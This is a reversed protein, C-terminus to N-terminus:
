VHFRFYPESPTLLATEVEADCYQELMRAVRDRVSIARKESEEGLGDINMVMVQTKETIRTQYGNRWNWRRCMVERTEAVVYIIEGSDPHETKEPDDLPTFNEDGEAFRLELTEGVRLIDDGGVPLAGRISNDNMIAVAKNIFPISAGLKQVRKLLALHAPPYKKPNLGLVRYTEAWASARPDSTLDVPNAAANVLADNLLSELPTASGHNNMKSAVVIGRRFSNFKDFVQDHVRTEPMPKPEESNNGPNRKQKVISLGVAMSKPM